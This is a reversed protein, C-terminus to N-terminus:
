YRAPRLIRTWELSHLSAARGGMFTWSLRADETAGDTFSLDQPGKFFHKLLELGAYGRYQDRDAMFQSAVAIRITRGAYSMERPVVGLFGVVKGRHLYVLSPLDESVWPNELFISAFYRELSLPAPRNQKRIVKLQMTAVEGLQSSDFARIEGM